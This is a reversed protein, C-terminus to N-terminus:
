KIKMLDGYGEILFKHKFKAKEFFKIDKEEAGFKAEVVIEERLNKKIIFDIEHNDEYYYFIDRFNKSLENFVYNEFLSGTDKYSVFINRIGNDMVYIKKNSRVRENLSKAYRSIISFLFTQQFCSVYETVTENDIKLIESLKNYSVKKGVRECLLIFLERLKNINKIKFTRAIDKYIIDDILSVIFEPNKTLVYEPMGGIKLYDEFYRNKLHSNSSSISINNFELFEEFNLPYVKITFVRGTLFAKKDIMRLSNSGSAFIKVNQNDNIAKLERSFDERYSVEDFFLYVKEEFKISNFERFKDILEDIRVSSISPDDFSVFFIKKPDFKENKLLYEIFQKMITTKGVRRLGVIFNIQKNRLNEELKKLYTSRRIGPAEYTNSWWPNYRELTTRIDM